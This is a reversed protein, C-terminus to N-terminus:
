KHEKHIERDASWIIERNIEYTSHEINGWLFSFLAFNQCCIRVFFQLFSKNNLERRFSNWKQRTNLTKNTSQSSCELQFLTQTKCKQIQRKKEKMNGEFM